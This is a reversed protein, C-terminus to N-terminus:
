RKRWPNVGASHDTLDVVDLIEPVEDRVAAEVGHRLTNDALGCGQCGGSMRVYVVNDIVDHISVGGGHSAVVPNVMEDLVRQIRRRLQDSTPVAALARPSVPPDNSGLQGRVVGAASQAIARWADSSADPDGLLRGLGEVAGALGTRGPRAARAVVVQDHAILATEVGDIALLAAGLPSDAADAPDAFYVWRDPLIPRDLRLRCRRGDIPEAVIRPESEPKSTTGVVGLGSGSRKSGGVFAIALLMGVFLGGVDALGDELDTARGIIALGQGLETLIALAVGAIVITIPGRAGTLVRSWLFGFGAFMITHAIKDLHPIALFGFGGGAISLGRKPIWCLVVIAVTWLAASALRFRSSALLLRM